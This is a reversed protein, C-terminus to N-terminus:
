KIQLKEGFCYASFPLAQSKRKILATTYLAILRLSERDTTDDTIETGNNYTQSLALIEGTIDDKM